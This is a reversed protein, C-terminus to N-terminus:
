SNMLWGSSGLVYWVLNEIMICAFNYNNKILENDKFFAKKEIMRKYFLDKLERIHHYKVKETVISNYVYLMTVFELMPRASLSKQRQSKSIGGIKQIAVKIEAPPISTNRNLNALM